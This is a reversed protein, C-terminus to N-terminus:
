LEPKGMYPQSLSISANLKKEGRNEELNFTVNEVVFSRRSNQLTQVFARINLFEGSIAMRVGLDVKSLKVTPDIIPTEDPIREVGLNKIIVNNESALKEIIKLSRILQPQPPIAENLDALRPQAQAYLDQAGRLALVKSELKELLDIKEKREQILDSMTLLTPQIAFIALFIVLGISLLLELSVMAVPKQYFSILASTIEKQKFSSM